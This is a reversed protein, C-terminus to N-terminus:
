ALPLVIKKVKQRNNLWIKDGASLATTTFHMVLTKPANFNRTIIIPLGTLAHLSCLMRKCNQKARLAPHTATTSKPSLRLSLPRLAGIGAGGWPMPGGRTVLNSERVVANQLVGLTTVTHFWDCNGDSVHCNQHLCFRFKRFQSFASKQSKM